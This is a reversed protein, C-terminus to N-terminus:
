EQAMKYGKTIAVINLVENHHMFCACSEFDVM